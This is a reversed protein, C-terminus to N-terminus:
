DVKTKDPRHRNIYSIAHELHEEDKIYTCSKGGWLSKEIQNKLKPYEKRMIRSTSGFLIM